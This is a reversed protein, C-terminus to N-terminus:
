ELVATDQGLLERARKAAADDHHSQSTILLTPEPRVGPSIPTCVVFPTQGALLALARGRSEAVPEVYVDVQGACGLGMDWAGVAGNSSCYSLRRPVGTRLVELAAERVDAELCGGSVNGVSQGSAQVLLKAGEHRYASGVVRIVTALAAPVGRQSLEALRELVARTEQWKKM